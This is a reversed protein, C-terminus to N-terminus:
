LDLVVSGSTPVAQCVLCQDPELDEPTSVLHAVTGSVVTAVCSECSGVRCGSAPTIGSREAFQLLTGDRAGWRGSVGAKSFTVAATAAPDIAVPAAAAHFKESFISFRHAGRATLGAVVEDLMTEPGCLYFRADRDILGQDVDSVGFRGRRVGNESGDTGARSYYTVVRLNPLRRALEAIRDRMAHGAHDRCGYYLVVEPGDGARAHLTELYSMFPTIGIGAAILVVPRCHDVPIVFTGTPPRVRVITGRRLRQHATSSFSGGPVKRIAIDYGRRDAVVAPGTLSYSRAPGDDAADTLSVTINQGPLFDPLHAGDPAELRLGLTDTAIMRVDAVVLDRTAPATWVQEDDLQVDCRTSRLPVSGSVPDRRGDTVLLNYNPSEGSVAPFGSLGLDPAEQWWGYEAVVVDARVGPDLRAKMRVSGHPTTIRVFRGEAFGRAAALDPHIDVRPEPSRRRLSSLARHQSHCFYGSKACTLTLPHDPDPPSVDVTPVPSHGHEALRDSFLEVRRSPTAFGRVTGDGPDTTAYGHAQQRVPVDIGAPMARLREVTLGLPELQHDRAADVDGGFFEDRLGLRCALDFVVETDSRSRGVPEVMQPRLQVRQQADPGIEFGVRLAEHEFPSEVPLLLDAFRSTPNEFMDLHVGFELAQLAEASRRPDPQSMLMNTGFAMLARVRYPDGDLVSRCFDRANIWGTAPPGLPLEDIGLALDRARAAIQDPSTVSRAPLGAFVRNGGPADYSGTLAYLTAIARETQTADSHQAVGSWAAYSVSRAAALDAALATIEAAPVGCVQAAREVPWAACARRYEAFAPRCRVGGHRTSVTREGTLAFRDADVAARETDYPVAGRAREDWCVFGRADPWVDEARLLRGTDARVLMPANTWRRVFQEDHGRRDLLDGALALALAGDTGPRVALWHDADAASSSRRPDVVALRAGRERAQALATSRALWTKAPNHGWLLTLDTHAYDPNPMVSGFTFQHAFDKHWNCIETAYLTNPSGFLRIFREIWEIADSIASGSPSTVAFAVAEPGDVARIRDLRGAVEAMAEDWGIETWRPDPDSKPTTRRLPRTLRGTAYVLEPAARGKPCMAAGTPHGPDPRAGRLVGDDVTYIAGCRSRCLTCYGHVDM